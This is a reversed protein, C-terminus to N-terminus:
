GNERSSPKVFMYKWVLGFIITVAISVGVGVGSFEILASDRICTAVYLTLSFGASAIAALVFPYTRTELSFLSQAVGYILGSVQFAALLILVTLATKAHFGFAHAMSALVGMLVGVPVVYGSMLGAAQLWKPWNRIWRGYRAAITSLM